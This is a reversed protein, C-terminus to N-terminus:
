TFPKLKGASSNAARFAPFRRARRASSPGGNRPAERRRLAGVSDSGHRLGDQHDGSADTLMGREVRIFAEALRRYERRAYDRRQRRTGNM